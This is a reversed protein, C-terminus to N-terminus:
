IAQEDRALQPRLDELDLDQVSRVELTFEVVSDRLCPSARLLSRGRPRGEAPGRFPGAPRIVLPVPCRATQSEVRTDTRPACRRRPRHSVFWNQPNAWM